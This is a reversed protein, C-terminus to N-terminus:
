AGVAEETKRRIEAMAVFGLLRVEYRHMLVGLEVGDANALRLTECRFVKRNPEHAYLDRGAFVEIPGLKHYVALGQDYPNYTPISSCAERQGPGGLVRAPDARVGCPHGRVGRRIVRAQGYRVDAAARTRPRSLHSAAFFSVGALLSLPVALGALALLLVISTSM